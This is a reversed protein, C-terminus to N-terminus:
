FQLETRAIIENQTLEDLTIFYASFGAVRVVLDRYNEPHLQADKLAESSVCNFQAHYGGLDFYTKILQLFKRAAGSGVLATPHFKLNFHNAGYKITDIVRAASIILATPGHTDTGPQASVTADTLALLAKRGNPLAGTFRGLASHAIVSYAEPKVPRGLFDPFMQHEKWCIEYLDRAITDVNEDDNGYKPANLCMRRIEEYGEFDADLAEKLQGITIRKEDFVLKKIAALSNALDVMAVFSVGNGVAYKPGGDGVDKGNGVCDHVLAASAFPVPLGRCLNWAVRGIQRMLPVSYQLQEVVADYFAQYSPFTEAEGTPVGIDIGTLPDRGNNLVLEVMKAANLYGEWHLYMHGPIVSQVCGAVAINRADEVSALDHYLHRATAKNIDQFAPQGIGTRILDVCKLLFDQPLRDHYMVNVLPEPLRIRQQAELVLYDLENTADKGEPTLGGLSLQSGIRSSSYAKGHPPLAEALGNIKLFFFHLLEIAEEDTIKGEEKDKKFFPYMYQTFRLPPASLVVPNEIWAAVLCFWTSQLAEHFSRAPNAPIWRCTEAMRELEQKREPYSERGAMEEALDAYRGALKVVAGLCVLAGNYFFLRGLDETNGIDLKAKEEEVDAMIGKLGKNLPRAFDPMAAAPGGPTVETVLGVKQLIGIDVGRTDLMIQKTRNFVNRDQWYDAVKGVWQRDEDGLPFEGGRQLSMTDVRKMWRSGIEPVVFGGYKFRTLTGALPNDDIYITKESCVKDFFKARRIAEPEGETEGYVELMFKIREIDLHPPASLLEEKEKRVRESLLSAREAVVM